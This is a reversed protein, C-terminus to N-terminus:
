KREYNPVTRTQANMERTRGRIFILFLGKIASWIRQLHQSVGTWAMAAQVGILMCNRLRCTAPADVYRRRGGPLPLADEAQGRRQLGLLGPHRLGHGHRPHLQPHLLGGAHLLPGPARRQVRGLQQLDLPLVGHGPPRRGRVAAGGHRPPGRRAAGRSREQVHARRRSCHIPIVNSISLM